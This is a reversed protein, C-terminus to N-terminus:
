RSVRRYEVEGTDRAKWQAATLCVKKAGLRSETAAERKCIKKEETPAEAVAPTEISQTVAAPSDSALLLVSLLTIM